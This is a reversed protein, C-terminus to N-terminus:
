KAVEAPAPDMTPFGADNLWQCYDAKDKATLTKLEDMFSKVSQGERKFQNSMQASFAKKVVTDSM